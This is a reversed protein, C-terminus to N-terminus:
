KGKGTFSTWRKWDPIDILVDGDWKYKPAMGELWETIQGMAKVLIPDALSEVEIIKAQLHFQGPSEEKEPSRVFVHDGILFIPPNGVSEGIRFERFALNKPLEDSAIRIVVSAFTKM